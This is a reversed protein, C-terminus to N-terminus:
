RCRVKTRQLYKKCRVIFIRQLNRTDAAGNANCINDAVSMCLCYNLQLNTQMKKFISCGYLSNELVIEVTRDDVVFGVILLNFLICLFVCIECVGFLIYLLFYTYLRRDSYVVVM